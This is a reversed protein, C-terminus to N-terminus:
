TEAGIVVLRPGKAYNYIHVAYFHSLQNQPLSKLQHAASRSVYVAIVRGDKAGVFASHSIEPMDGDGWLNLADYVLSFHGAKPLAMLTADFQITSPPLMLRQQKEIMKASLQNADIFENLVVSEFHSSVPATDSSNSAIAQSSLALLVLALVISPRLSLSALSFLQM